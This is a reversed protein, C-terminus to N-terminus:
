KLCNYCGININKKEKYIIDYNTTLYIKLIVLNMFILFYLIFRKLNDM